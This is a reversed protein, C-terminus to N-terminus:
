VGALAHPPGLAECAAVNWGNLAAGDFEDSVPMTAAPSAAVLGFVAL